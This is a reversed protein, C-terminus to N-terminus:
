DLISDPHLVYGFEVRYTDKRDFEVFAYQVVNVGDLQTKRSYDWVTVYRKTVENVDVKGSGDTDALDTVTGVIAKRRGDLRVYHAEVGDTTIIFKGEPDELAGAIGSEADTEEHLHLAILKLQGYKKYARLRVAQDIGDKAGVLSYDCWQEGSVSSEFQSLKVVRFTVGNFDIGQLQLPTGVTYGLPNFVTAEAPKPPDPPTTPAAAPKSGFLWASISRWMRTLWAM